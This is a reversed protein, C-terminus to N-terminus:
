ACNDLVTSGIFRWVAKIQTLPQSAWETEKIVSELQAPWDGSVPSGPESALRVVTRACTLVAERAEEAPSMVTAKVTLM